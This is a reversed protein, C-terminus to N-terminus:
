STAELDHMLRDYPFHRGPCATREGPVRGHVTVNSPAIRYTHMLAKCHNVLSQFQGQPPPGNEFNGILCVGISMINKATNRSSLHAGWLKYTWRRTPEVQGMPIGNGNGIVFHYPIMDIPDRAQRQRHVRRLLASTGYNGASYHVVIGNWRAMAAASTGAAATALGGLILRRRNLM